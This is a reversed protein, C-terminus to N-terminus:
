SSKNQDLISSIARLVSTIVPASLNRDVSDSGVRPLRHGSGIWPESISGSIRATPRSARSSPYSLIAKEPPDPRRVRSSAPAPGPRPPNAVQSGGQACAGGCAALLWTSRPASQHRPCEPGAAAGGGRRIAPVHKSACRAGARVPFGVWGFLPAPRFFSATRHPATRFGM